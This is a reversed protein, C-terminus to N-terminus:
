VSVSLESWIGGALAVAGLLALAVGAAWGPSGWAFPVTLWLGAVLGLGGAVIAQVFREM